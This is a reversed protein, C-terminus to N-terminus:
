AVVNEKGGIVCIIVFLLWYFVACVRVVVCFVPVHLVHLRLFLCLYASCHVLFSLLVAYLLLLLIVFAWWATCVYVHYIAIYIIAPPWSHISYHHCLFSIHMLTDVAITATHTNRGIHVHIHIQTYTHIYIIYTQIVM